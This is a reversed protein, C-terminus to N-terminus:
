RRRTLEVFPKQQLYLQLRSRIRAALQADRKSVLEAARRATEVADGFRGAAAYAAALTDLVEPDTHGTIDAAARALRMAERPDRLSTERHTALIWAAANLPRAWGPRSSAAQKFSQLAEDGRGLRDLALGLEYHAMPHDPHTRLVQRLEDIAAEHDGTASLAVGLNYHAEPYDPVIELARRYHAMAEARRGRLDLEIGLNNHLTPAGPAAELSHEFLTVTDRWHSAQAWTAAASATVAVVGAAALAWRLVNRGEFRTWAESGAWAVVIFLGVLPLYTYRDAMAQSGVQILGIVPVLTVVYWLWGVLAYPRRSRYFGWTLAILAAVATAVQWGAWPTGGPMNPHPYLVSLDAPWLMKGIYRLYSLAANAMRMGLSLDFPASVAGGGRQVLWTVVSSAASLALLPLKEVFLQVLTGGARKGALTRGRGVSGIMMRRLPWYDLLLFVLPLSVLMPKATLGLALFLGALLYRGRGGCRAYVAYSWLSLLGFFTSLVDKREAVWAVSEVHLPHLAFLAAVFGSAWPTGTMYQLVGFLLLANLVHLVLSTGHHGGPDLGFLESDLMHSMWTLPHWNSAENTTWAWALGEATLGASIRPNERVYKDDDLKVFPFGLVQSYVAVTAVALLACIMINRRM